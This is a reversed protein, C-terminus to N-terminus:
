NARSLLEFFHDLDIVALPYQRNMKVVLLPEMNGHGSAHRYHRYLTKYEERNKTEIDYPMLKRASLSILKVDAGAESMLSTRIDDKGLSPFLKQVKDRVLNQLIRGKAKRSKNNL